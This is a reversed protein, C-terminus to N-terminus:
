EATAGLKHMDRLWSERQAAGASEVGGFLSERVPKIGSGRLTTKEHHPFFFCRYIWTPMQMTAIIRATKGTLAKPKRYYEIAGLPQTPVPGPTVFSPRFTQELFGRLLAPATGNWIPFSMVLHDAAAILAQSDRITPTPESRQEARSHLPSFELEAVALLSVTHEAARAGTVYANALACALHPGAPDPHGLIVVIRKSLPSSM